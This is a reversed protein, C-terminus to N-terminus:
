LKVIDESFGGRRLARRASGFGCFLEGSFSSLRSTQKM